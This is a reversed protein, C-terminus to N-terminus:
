RYFLEAKEKPPPATLLSGLVMIILAVILTPIMSHIGYPKGLVFEWVLATIGGGLVAGLGGVSNARRWFGAYLPVFAVAAYITYAFAIAEVIGPFLLAWPLGVLGVVATVVRSVRFTAEDTLTPKLVRVVDWAISATASILLSNATTVITTLVGAFLLAGLWEPLALALRPFVEGSRLGPGLITRAATGMLYPGMFYAFFAGPIMILGALQATREDRSAAFRQIFLSQSVSVIGFVSIFAGLATVPTFHGLFQLHKPPLAEWARPGGALAISVSGGLIIALAMVIAQVCDTIAVGKLGGPIAIAVFAITSLVMAWERPMGALVILVSSLAIIQVAYIAVYAISLMFGMAIRTAKDYRLGILESLTYVGLKRVRRALATSILAVGAIAGIGYFWWDLGFTYFAGTWGVMTAGGVYTAWITGLVIPLPLARGAVLYDGLTKTKRHFYVGVSLVLITYVVAIGLLLEKL